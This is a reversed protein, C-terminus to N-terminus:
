CPSWRPHDHVSEGFGSVEYGDVCSCHEFPHQSRCLERAIDACLKSSSWKLDLTMTQQENKPAVACMGRSESLGCNPRDGASSHGFETLWGFGLLYARLRCLPADLYNPCSDARPQCCSGLFDSSTVTRPRIHVDISCEVWNSQAPLSSSRQDLDQQQPRVLLWDCEPCGLLQSTEGLSNHLCSTGVRPAQPQLNNATRLGLLIIRLRVSALQLLKWTLTNRSNDFRCPCLWVLVKDIDRSLKPSLFALNLRPVLLVVWIYNYLHM